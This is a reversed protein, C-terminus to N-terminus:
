TKLGLANRLRHVMERSSAYSILSAKPVGLLMHSVKASRDFLLLIRKGYFYAAMVEM